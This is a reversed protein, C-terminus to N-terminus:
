KESAIQIIKVTKFHAEKQLENKAILYNKMNKMKKSQVDKQKELALSAQKGAARKQERAQIEVKDIAAQAALKVSQENIEMKRARALATSALSEASRAQTLAESTAYVLAKVKNKFRM